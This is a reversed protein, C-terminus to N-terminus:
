SFQELFRDLTKKDVLRVGDFSIVNQAEAPPTFIFKFGVGDSGARIVKAMVAITNGSKGNAGDTKQLTMM